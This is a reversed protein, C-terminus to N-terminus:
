LGYYYHTGNRDVVEWWYNKPNDGHRVISDFSGEIRSYFRKGDPFRNDYKRAFAPLSDYNVLLQEGNLLYTETEKTPSYLPVGWRTEVSICPISIDWGVGLWGNGGSSNYTLALNPQMGQRGAPIQLM